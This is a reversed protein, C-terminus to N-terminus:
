GDAAGKQYYTSYDDKLCEECYPYHYTIHGRDCVIWNDTKDVVWERDIHWELNMRWNELYERVGPYGQVTCEKEFEVLEELNKPAQDSYEEFLEWVTKLIM